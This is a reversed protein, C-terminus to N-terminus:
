EFVEVGCPPYSTGTCNWKPARSKRLIDKVAAVAPGHSLKSFGPLRSALRGSHGAQGKVIEPPAGDPINVPGTNALRHPHHNGAMLRGTDVPAIPDRRLLINPFGQLPCLGSNRLVFLAANNWDCFGLFGASLIGVRVFGACNAGNGPLIKDPLM